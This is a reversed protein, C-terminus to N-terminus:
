NNNAQQHPERDRPKGSAKLLAFEDSLTSIYFILKPLQWPTNAERRM